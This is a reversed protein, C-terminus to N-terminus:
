FKVHLHRTTSATTTHLWPEVCGRKARRLRRYKVMKIIEPLTCIMLIRMARRGRSVKEDSLHSGGRLEREEYMSVWQTLRVCVFLFYFLKTCMLIYQVAYYSRCLVNSVRCPCYFKEAGSSGSLNQPGLLVSDLTGCLAFRGHRSASWECIIVLKPIFPNICWIGM